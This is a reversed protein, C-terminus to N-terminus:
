RFTFVLGGLVAALQARSKGFSRLYSGTLVLGGGDFFHTEIGMEGLAAPALTSSTQHDGGPPDPSLGTTTREVLAGGGGSLWLRYTGHGLTFRPAIAVAVLQNDIATRGPDLSADVVPLPSYDVALSLGLGNAGTYGMRAGVALGSERRDATTGLPAILGGIFSVHWYGHPRAAHAPRSMVVMSWLMAAAAVCTAVWRARAGSSLGTTM